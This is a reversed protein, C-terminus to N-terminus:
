TIAMNGPNQRSGSVDSLSKSELNLELPIHENYKICSRAASLFESLDAAVAIVNAGAM